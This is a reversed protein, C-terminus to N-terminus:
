RRRRFVATLDEDAFTLIDGALTGEIEGEPGSGPSTGNKRTFRIRVGGPAERLVSAKGEFIVPVLSAGGEEGLDRLTFRWTLTRDSYVQLVGDASPLPGGDMSELQYTGPVGPALLPPGACASLLWVPALSLLKRMM